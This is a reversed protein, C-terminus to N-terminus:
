IHLNTQSILCIKKGITTIASVSYLLAGPFTWRTSANVLNTKGDWKKNTTYGHIITRYKELYDSARLLWEKKLDSVSSNYVRTIRVSSETSDYNKKTTTFPSSTNNYVATTTIVDYIDTINTANRSITVNYFDTINTSNSHEIAITNAAISAITDATTRSSPADTASVISVTEIVTGNTLFMSSTM